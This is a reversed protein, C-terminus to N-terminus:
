SHERGRRSNSSGGSRGREGEGHLQFARIITRAQGQLNQHTLVAGKPRGTTGSTYMILAPTDEPADVPAASEGQEAVLAEYDETGEWGAGGVAVTPLAGDMLGVADRGVAAAFDDVVLLRAGSNGLVYSAEPGTLRFNLPVAIAGLRNAALVTEMFEPRNGM